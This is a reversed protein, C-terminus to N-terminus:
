VSIVQDENYKNGERDTYSINIKVEKENDKLKLLIIGGKVGKETIPGAMLTSVYVLNGETESDM